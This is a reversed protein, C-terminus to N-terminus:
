MEVVALQRSDALITSSGTGGTTWQMEYTHNGPATTNNLYTMAITATQSVNAGGSIITTTGRETTPEAVGDILLRTRVESGTLVAGRVFVTWSVMVPNGHSDATVTMRPNTFNAYLVNDASELGVGNIFARAKPKLGITIQDALVDAASQALDFHSGNFNLISPVTLFDGDVFFRLTKYPIGPFTPAFWAGSSATALGISASLLLAVMWKGGPKM